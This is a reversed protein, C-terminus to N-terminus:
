SPKASPEADDPFQDEFGSTEGRLLKAINMRVSWRVDNTSGKERVKNALTHPDVNDSDKLTSGAARHTRIYTPQSSYCKTNVQGNGACVGAMENDIFGHLGKVSISWLLKQAGRQSLAYGFLCIPGKAKHIVRTHDPFRAKLDKYQSMHKKAPVLPDNKIEFVRDDDKPFSEGCHGIWLIDWDDGYPSELVADKPTGQLYRVGQAFDTLGSKLRIDWDVDDEMILASTLNERVISDICVNAQRAYPYPNVIRRVVASFLPYLVFREITDMHGRWCGLPNAPFKERNVGDPLAKDAIDQGKRGDMFEVSMNSVGAQLSIGDRRDSREPLSVVFIKEFGLTANYIDGYGTPKTKRLSPLTKSQEKLLGVVPEYYVSGFRLLLIVPVICGIALCYIFASRSSLLAKPALM